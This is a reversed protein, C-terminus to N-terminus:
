IREEKNNKNRMDLMKDYKEKVTEKFDQLSNGYKKKDIYNGLENIVKITERYGKNRLTGIVCVKIGENSTASENYMVANKVIEIDEDSVIEGLELLDYVRKIFEKRVRCTMKGGDFENKEERKAKGRLEGIRRKLKIIDRKRENEKKWNIKDNTNEEKLINNMEISDGKQINSKRTTRIVYKVKNDKKEIKRDFKNSILVYERKTIKKEKYANIVLEYFVNENNLYFNFDVDKTAFYNRKGLEFLEVDAVKIGLIIALNERSINHRVRFAILAERTCPTTLATEDNGFVKNYIKRARPNSEYLQLIRKKLKEEDSILEFVYEPRKLRRIVVDEKRRIFCSESEEFIGALEMNSFKYRKKFEELLDYTVIVEEELFDDRELFVININVYKLSKKLDNYM